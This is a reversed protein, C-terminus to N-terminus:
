ALVSALEQCFRMEPSVAIQSFLSIRSRLAAVETILLSWDVLDGAPSLGNWHYRDQRMQRVRLSYRREMERLAVFGDFPNFVTEAHLGTQRAVQPIAYIGLVQFEPQELLDIHTPTQVAERIRSALFHVAERESGSAVAISYLVPLVSVFERDAERRWHVSLYGYETEFTLERKKLRMQGKRALTAFLTLRVFQRINTKLTGFGKSKEETAHGNLIWGPDGLFRVASNLDNSVLLLALADTILEMRANRVEFLSTSEERVSTHERVQTSGFVKSLAPAEAVCSLLYSVTRRIAEENWNETGPLRPM